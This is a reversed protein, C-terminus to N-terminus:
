LGCCRKFKQGSGCSCPTNRGVRASAHRPKVPAAGSDLQKVKGEVYRWLGDVRQFRSREHLAEEKGARRYRAVFEVEGEQDDVNGRKLGLIELGQWQVGRSFRETEQRDFAKNTAHTQQLYDLDCEAFATYRSRMLVEATAAQTEGKL